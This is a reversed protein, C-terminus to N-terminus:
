RAPQGTVPPQTRHQVKDAQKHIVVEVRDGAQLTSLLETPAKLEVVEDNATRLKLLKASQDVNQVTAAMTGAGAMRAERHTWYPQVGYYSYVQQAWQRDAMDPWNDKNFSPANKLREKDVNLVFRDYQAGKTTPTKPALAQWPVAFYKEGMGLIGGFALVAYAMQGTEPDIVVDKIDGLNEGQPNEVDTGILKSARYIYSNEGVRAPEAAFAATVLLLSLLSVASAWTKTWKM